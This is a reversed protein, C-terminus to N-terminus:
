EAAPTETESIEAEVPPSQPTTTAGVRALADRLQRTPKKGDMQQRRTQGFAMQTEMWASAQVITYHKAKALAYRVTAVPTTSHANGLLLQAGIGSMGSMEIQCVVQTDTQEIVALGRGICDAALMSSAEARDVDFYGVVPGKAAAPAGIAVFIGAYVVFAKRVM